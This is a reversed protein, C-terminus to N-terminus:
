GTRHSRLHRENESDFWGPEISSHILYNLNPSVAFLRNHYRKPLQEAEYIEFTHTFRSVKEHSMSQFYHFAFPNSLAGHKGFNKLYYGGQVYHFGRTNGGNHGSFVRGASDFEIGFANGGGEAFVEYKRTKPHYRFINQGTSHVPKEDPFPKGDPQYRVVSATVTSGQTGYIWGDPGWRLSNAISHSDEIGFGSLLVEPRENDPIDDQNADKYFLLYPPNMVFVGDRGKLAATALNLGDVFIKHSDFTGDGDTDEHISIRDKGRFKSDKDHPPPPAFPPDYVNRWVNDRSILKLGAPWPYQRYEVLWMRGREDFSIYLPNAILPDQM